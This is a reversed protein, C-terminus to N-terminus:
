LPAGGLAHLETSMAGSADGAPAVDTRGELTRHPLAFTFRSGRGLDSEVWLRGGHLEVFRRALALGLGTGQETRAGGAQQFEEFIRAQDEAAIGIGDDSVSVQVEDELQRVTVSVNGGDLTFKVANSLLNFVVQKVKREDATVVPPGAGAEFALTIAKRMAAERVMSLGSEIVGDLLFEEPELEMRGAEVKSLDLIDNILLLLHQGSSHIDDIYEAQRDNLEGFM